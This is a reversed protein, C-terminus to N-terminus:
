GRQEIGTSTILVLHRLGLRQALDDGSIPSLRAPRWARLRALGAMSEVNVVLGM